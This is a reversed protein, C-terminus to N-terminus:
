TAGPNPHVGHSPADRQDDPVAARFADLDMCAREAEILSPYQEVRVGFRRANYLQPVLCVDAYTPHVAALFPGKRGAVLENMAQLGQEIWARCWAEVRQEVDEDPQPELLRRLARLTGVNQLPQISSNVIEALQRCRARSLPTDPLLPPSPHREELYELIALSQALRHISGDDLVELVPVQRSQNIEAFPPSLQESADPALDVPVVDHSLGKYALAIRVRWTCSSRWYGFLRLGTM